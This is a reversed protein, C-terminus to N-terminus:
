SENGKLRLFTNTYAAFGEKLYEESWGFDKVTYRHKGHKGKPNEKIFSSLAKEHRSTWGLDFHKYIHKVVSGPDAILDTYQIDLIFDPNHQRFAMNREINKEFMYELSRRMKSLDIYKLMVSHVSYMLSTFSGLAEEPRRHTQIAMADPLVAKIKQVADMHPPSKLILREGPHFAQLIQLLQKWERYAERRDTSLLWKNYSHVPFYYWFEGSYFTLGFLFVDEEVETPLTVHRQDLKNILLKAWSIEIKALKIRYNKGRKLEKANPIPRWTEWLPLGYHGPLVSLMRQLFTTRSRPLGTIIFPPILTKSLGEPNKKLYDVFLLRNSLCRIIQTHANTKGIFNLSIDESLSFLLKKLGKKFYSNGFDELGGARRIAMKLLTAEKLSGFKLGAKLALLGLQDIPKYILPLQSKLPDM